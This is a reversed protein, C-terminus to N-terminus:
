DAVLFSRFIPPPNQANGGTGYVTRSMSWRGFITGRLNVSSRYRMDPDVDVDFYTGKKKQADRIEALLQAPEASKPRRSLRMLAKKDLSVKGDKNHYPGEGLYEYFFEQWRKSLPKMEGPWEFGTEAVVEALREKKDRIDREYDRTVLDLQPLDIAVGRCMRDLAPELPRMTMEMTREFGEAKLQAMLGENWDNGVIAELSQTSDLCCYKQFKEWEAMVGKNETWAKLDDKYYPWDCQVSNITGLDKKLGANLIGFACAPDFYPGTPLLGWEMFYIWLDFLLFQNALMTEPARLISQFLDILELEETESWYHQYREDLLPICMGEDWDRALSFCTICRRNASVEVDTNVIPAGLCHRLFEKAQAFTPLIHLRKDPLQAGEAFRRAKLLDAKLLYRQEYKGSSKGKEGPENRETCAAPHISPILWECAAPLDTYAGRDKPLEWDIQCNAIPLPSGRWKTIGVLGTLCNLAPQGLPMIVKGRFQSLLELMPRAAEFGADTLVKSQACLKTGDPAYINPPQAQDKKVPWPWLNLTCLDTQRRQQVEGPRWGFAQGLAWDWIGGAGMKNAMPRKLRMETGAPAEAVACIPADLSGEFQPSTEAM